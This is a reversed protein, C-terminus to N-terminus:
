ANGGIADNAFDTIATDLDPHRRHWTTAQEYAHAVRLVMTEDFLRGALQLSIPLGEDSFGAPVAITPTNAIAFPRATHRQPIASKIETGSDAGAASVRPPPGLNGPSLLVDYQELAQLVQHRVISRLRMARTRISGPVMAAAALRTRTAIDLDSWRNRLWHRMAVSAVDVDTTASTLPGTRSTAPLSIEDVTAGLSRLVEVCERMGKAVAPHIEDVWTLETVLAIRVGRIDGTLAAAYDPVPLTSSLPDKPDNGAIAQLVLAADEVTHTMPGLTDAMWGFMVGGHRSVRGYTPRLGVLNMAAAPGRISGGTDEGIAFTNLGAAVAVGSGNSSSSSSYGLNWPNRPYGYPFNVTGGKGLEHLNHKGVFIAGADELRTIVTATETPVYDSLVKSGLTTLIGATMLQDKVGFPIGHLPGLRAGSRRQDTAKKAAARAQDALVTIHSKLHPDYRHIRSLAHETLDSPTVDGSALLRSQESITTYDLKLRM